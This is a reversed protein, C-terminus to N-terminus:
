KRILMKRTASFDGATVSDRTSETSLTYFYVGSAVKEGFANKGDWYAARSRNQYMGAPQHGLTLTRVLTGNVAYIHLTVNADKSLHYPIWTEPNFPNPYNVLLQTQKPIMAALLQELNEIGRQFALSGDDRLRALTLWTQIMEADLDLQRVLSTPPAAGSSVGEGFHEAVIILDDIDVTGDGNVDARKNSLRALGFNKSVIVLDTRNVKGDRNVDWDPIPAGDTATAIFTQQFGDASAVVRNEGPDKGLTLTTQARGNANTTARSASLKGGGAAVRFTVPIGSLVKKNQDRVQVVFPKELATNSTGQQNDGSVKRLVEPLPTRITPNAIGPSSIDSFNGYYARDAPKLDAEATAIWGWVKTGDRPVNNVRRRTISTRHESQTRGRNAGLPLNWQVKNGKFNGAEDILKGTRDTLKISFGEASLLTDWYGLDFDVHKRIRLGYVQREKLNGSIEDVEKSVILLTENPWIRPADDWVDDRFLVRANVPGTLDPSNRNQITLTWESLNVIDRGSNHLEIWQASPLRSESAFMIETISVKSHTEEATFCLSILILAISVTIKRNVILTKM